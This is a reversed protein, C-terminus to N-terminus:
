DLCWLTQNEVIDICRKFVSCAIKFSFYRIVEHVVLRFFFFEPVGMDRAISRISNSPNKDIMAQIKAVFEPTRIVVIKTPNWTATGEYDENPNVWNKGFGRFPGRISVWVRLFSRIPTGLTFAM